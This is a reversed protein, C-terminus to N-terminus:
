ISNVFQEEATSEGKKLLIEYLMTTDPLPEVDLESRLAEVCRHYQRLALTREGRRAFVRM